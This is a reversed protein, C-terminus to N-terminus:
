HAWLQGGTRGIRRWMFGTCVMWILYKCYIKINNERGGIGPNEFHHIKKLMELLVLTCKEGTRSMSCVSVMESEKVKIM